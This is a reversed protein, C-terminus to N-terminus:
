STRAEGRLRDREQVLCCPCLCSEGWLWTLSQIEDRTLPVRTCPCHGARNAMCLFSEGCAPCDPHDHKDAPDAPLDSMIITVVSRHPPFRSDM